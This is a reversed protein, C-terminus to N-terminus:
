VVSLLDLDSIEESLLNKSFHSHQIADFNSTRFGFVLDDEDAIIELLDALRSRADMLHTKHFLLINTFKQVSDIHALLIDDTVSFQNM